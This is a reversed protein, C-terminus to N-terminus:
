PWTGFHDLYIYLTGLPKNEGPPALRHGGRLHQKQFRPERAPVSRVSWEQSLHDVEKSRRAKRQNIQAFLETVLAVAHIRDIGHEKRIFEKPASYRRKRSARRTGGPDDPGKPLNPFNWAHPAM